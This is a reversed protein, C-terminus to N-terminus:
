IHMAQLPLALFFEILDQFEQTTSPFYIIFNSIHGLPQFSQFYLSHSSQCPAPYQCTTSLSLQHHLIWSTICLHLSFVMTFGTTILPSSWLSLCAHLLTFSSSERSQQFFACVLSSHFSIPFPIPIHIFYNFMHFKKKKIIVVLLNDGKSNTPPPSIFYFQYQNPITRQPTL